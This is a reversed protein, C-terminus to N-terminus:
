RPAEARPPLSAFDVEPEGSGLEFPRAVVAYVYGVPVGEDGVPEIGVADGPLDPRVRDAEQRNRPEELDKALIAALIAALIPAEAACAEVATM